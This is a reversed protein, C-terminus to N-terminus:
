LQEYDLPQAQGEVIEQRARRAADALKSQTRKFSNDWKMEDHLEEIYERLHEVVREQASEPLAELMKAVTAVSATSM